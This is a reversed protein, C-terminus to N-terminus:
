LPQLSLYMRKLDNNKLVVGEPLSFELIINVFNNRNEALTEDGNNKNGRLCGGLVGTAVTGRVIFSIVENDNITAHLYPLISADEINDFSAVLVMDRVDRVDETGYRNNWVQLKVKLPKAVTHTGAYHDDTQTLSGDEHMVFWDIIAEPLVIAM